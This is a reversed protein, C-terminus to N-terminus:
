IDPVINVPIGGGELPKVYEACSFGGSKTKAANSESKSDM